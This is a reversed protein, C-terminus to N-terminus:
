NKQETEFKHHLEWCRCYTRPTFVDDNFKTLLKTFEGDDTAIRTQAHDYRSLKMQSFKGTPSSATRCKRNDASNQSFCLVVKINAVNVCDGFNHDFALKGIPELRCSTVKSIQTKKNKGGFVFLENKWTMSCSHDVESKEDIDFDFDRDERGAANTLVPGIAAKNTNLILM